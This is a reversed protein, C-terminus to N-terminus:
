LGRTEKVQTSEILGTHGYYGNHSNYVALQFSGKNTHFTVFMIDGCDLNSAADIMKTNLASDTTTINLLGSGIFQDLNDESQVYGWSECCSQSNSVLVLIEQSDTTVKYGEFTEDWGYQTKKSIDYVEEIKLIVEHLEFM